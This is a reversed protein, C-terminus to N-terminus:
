NVAIIIPAILIFDYHLTVHFRLENLEAILYVFWLIFKVARYVYILKSNKYFILTMAFTFLYM